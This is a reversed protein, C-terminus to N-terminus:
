NKHNLLVSIIKKAATGDGYVNRGKTMSEYLGPDTILADLSNCIVDPDTGVLRCVGAELGEPRETLDRMVLCPKGLTAAEEQVGGSDSLLLRCDKMAHLFSVYDIPATLFINACEGLIEEAPYKVSPNPHVPYWVNLDSHQRSFARVAEFIGRIKSGFSERRHCTMLIYPKSGRWPTSMAPERNELIYQLADVVTNGTLHILEEPIREDLLNRKSQETPVFHYHASLGAIRRNFEEPFPQHLNQTRLGAEVHGFPINELFCVMASAMVTATDGQALLVDPKEEKCIEGVRELVSSVVRVLTQNRTMLNLDDDPIIGFIEFVSDLMERHQATAVIKTSCLNKYRRLEMIIPAMKIAEPRTGIVCIIKKM